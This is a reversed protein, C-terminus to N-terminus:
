RGASTETAKATIVVVDELVVQDRVALVREEDAAREREEGREDSGLREAGVPARPHEAEVEGPREVAVAVEDGLRARHEGHHEQDREARQEEHEGREHDGPVPGVPSVGSSSSRMTATPSTVPARRRRPTEIATDLKVVRLAAAATPTTSRKKTGALTTRVAISLAPAGFSSSRNLKGNTTESSEYRIKPSVGSSASGTSSSEVQSTM